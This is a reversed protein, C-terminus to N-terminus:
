CEHHTINGQRLKSNFGTFIDESLNIGRFAKGIGGRIIHFNRDYVNPHEYQFHVKLPTALVMQGIKVFSTEQNSMFSGLSSINRTFIHEHMGLTTSSRLGYDENFEELLNRMKLDEELYNDHNM